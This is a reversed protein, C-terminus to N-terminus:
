REVREPALLVGIPKWLPKRIIFYKRLSPNEKITIQDINPLMAQDLVGSIMMPRGHLDNSWEPMDKMNEVYIDIGRYNFCWEGKYWATGRLEVKQGLQDGLKVQRTTGKELRFAKPNNTKRIVGFGEVTKEDAQKPWIALPNVLLEWSEGVIYSKNDRSVARGEILAERDIFDAPSWHIAEIKKARYVTYYHSFYFSATQLPIGARKFAEAPVGVFGGAEYGEFEYTKGFELKPLSHGGFEGFYPSLRIQIDDQISRGNIRQVRVNPGGEYGKSKGDVVIGQVTVVSGFPERLKPILRREVGPKPTSTDKTKDEGVVIQNLLLLTCTVFLFRYM